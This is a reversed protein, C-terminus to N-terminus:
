QNYLLKEIEKDSLKTDPHKIRYDDVRLQAVTKMSYRTAVGAGLGAAAKKGFDVAIERGYSKKLDLDMEKGTMKHVGSKTLKGSNNFVIVPAKANYGSYKQDNIDHVADYGLSKMKDYFKNSVASGSPSRNILGINMADYGQKRIQKDTMEKGANRFMGAMKPDGFLHAFEMEQMAKKYSDRFESDNKYLDEFVKSANKRSAVKVDSNASLTVKHVDRGSFHHAGMRGRYTTNDSKKFSSYFPRDLSEDPTKTIRQMTSGSKIIQDANNKFHNNVAYATAAAVTVGGVVAITKEVRIRKDAAAAAQQENMGQERYKAELNQRHKSKEKPGNIAEKRDKKAYEYDVRADHRTKMSKVYAERKASYEKGSASAWENYAKTSAKSASKYAAKTEAVKQDADYRKKGAPTLSGDENQFRRRGWKMGKVGHHYLEYEM